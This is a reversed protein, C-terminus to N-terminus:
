ILGEIQLSCEAWHRHQVVPRFSLYMGFVTMVDHRTGIVWVAPTSRYQAIIRCVRDFDADNIIMPFEPHFSYNGKKISIYGNEDVVKKSYDNLEPSYGWQLQGLEIQRGLLLSGCQATGGPAHIEVRITVNRFAPIELETIRDKPSRKLFFYTYWGRVGDSTRLIYRKRFVEGNLPHTAIVDVYAGRLNQLSLSNVAVGTKIEVIISSPNQTATTNYLDFMRWRNSPGKDEWQTLNDPPYVGILAGGSNNEYIRHNAIVQAGNVYSVSASYLPHENELVNSSLLSSDTINAPPIMRVLGEPCNTLSM